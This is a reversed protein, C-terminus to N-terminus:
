TFLLITFGAPPSGNVELGDPFNIPGHIVVPTYAALHIDGMGTAGGREDSLTVTGQATASIIMTKFSAGYNNGAGLVDVIGDGVTALKIIGGVRTGAM